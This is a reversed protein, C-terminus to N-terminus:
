VKVFCKLRRFKLVTLWLSTDQKNPEEPINNNLDKGMEMPFAKNYKKQNNNNNNNKKNKNEAVKQATNPWKLVRCIM